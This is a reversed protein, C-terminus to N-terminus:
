TNSYCGEFMRSGDLDVPNLLGDVLGSSDAKKSAKNALYMDTKAKNPRQRMCACDLTFGASKM